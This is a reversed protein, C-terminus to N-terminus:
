TVGLAVEYVPEPVDAETTEVTAVRGAARVDPLVQRLADLAGATATVRLAAVDARMSLKAASKARRVATVAAGALPVLSPDAPGALARLEAGSPWAARHVSGDRWWSWVEETVFPLFPALLRLFVSLAPRLAAHASAREEAGREGYARAKVLEVHDDCFEWFADEVRQIAGTHDYDELAATADDVVDALWALMARDLPETVAAADAPDADALGLVFRSANLVKIALRRGVRMMADDYTADVGLRGHAAWYRFGDTGYRELASEPTVANGKSKSMKKRDPDYIFGSVAAHRWPLRNHELHARVVTSFLWTRIIDHGQPRLDMPFVRAFLDEDDLWGGAIQPTLSSTAWTDLIDPDAVFGGPRGRQDEAYGPPVDTSPDVPLASEDPLLPDDYRPEGAADVPYWVPIPVGFYRQRSILWDGTLGGVWDAYRAGMFPPHWSLESGRKLLATRLQEDRGGNRIYWQRTPVIELPREGKEYFNVAHTVPRPEGRLEGADRLLEVARARAQRTTRGALEAYAAADVGDPPDPLMRGDRGMVARVPLDLERWWTVDTLDGFTCVMAIGTGKEPDALRHARVPVRAGFVPTSVDRGVLGAYREDDPHCVLAVCAPLLEPRTTDILVDGGDGDARFALAHYAGAVERDEVEAQAVATRFDVDWLSPADSQYAEGRRLNRLFALQSVRRARDGITTYGYSWDVSLGLSRFTREFAQEDEATLRRCLSVFDPRSISVPHKAPEQPPTFGPDRPLSPDCRVGYHNQVRRETPLGNDDWGIPYFVTRGRMRQFRAVIDTHTYSFMTGVHLTGSVTPPPTDVAYVEDRTSTRDFAYTQQRDWTRSWKEELGDLTPKAPVGM